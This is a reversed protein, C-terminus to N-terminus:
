HFYKPQVAKVREWAGDVAQVVEEPLPGKEFAELNQQLQQASSAGIIIADGHERKLQSHHVMWRLAIEVITVNHAQAIPKLQEITDFFTDNWYRQRYMKGQRRNPDFRGGEEVVTEKNSYRGTFFGGALPNFAYFKIGFKRLCPFLEPEVSRRIGNYLGQYITPQIWNNARCIYVIEAVEWAMYNSIGFETFLGEKHLENITRCTDVFPVKRDPAHLYYIDVKKVKLAALSDTMARRIGEPTHDYEPVPFVKTALKFGQKTQVEMKGLYEECTGGGYFRATDLENHGYQKFVDLVQQCTKLDHIRAQEKGEEGFTMCGFVINIATKAAM